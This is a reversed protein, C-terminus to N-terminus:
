LTVSKYTLTYTGYLHQFNHQLTVVSKFEAYWVVYQSYLWVVICVPLFLVQLTKVYELVFTMTM